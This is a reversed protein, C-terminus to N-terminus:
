RLNGIHVEQVQDSGLIRVSLVHNLPCIFTAWALAYIGLYFSKQAWVLGQCIYHNYLLSSTSLM